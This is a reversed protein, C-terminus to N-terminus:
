SEANEKGGHLRDRRKRSPSRTYTTRTPRQTFEGIIRVPGREDRAPIDMWGPPLQEIEKSTLPAQCHIAVGPPETVSLICHQQGVGALLGAAIKSGAEITDSDLEM